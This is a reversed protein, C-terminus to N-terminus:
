PNEGLMRGITEDLTKAYGAATMATEEPKGRATYLWSKYPNKHLSEPSSELAPNMRDFSGDMVSYIDSAAKLCEIWGITDGVQIAEEQQVEFGAEVLEGLMRSAYKTFGVQHLDDELPLIWFHSASYLRDEPLRTSFRSKEYFLSL